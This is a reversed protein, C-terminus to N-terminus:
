TKRFACFIFNQISGSPTTHNITVCEIKEFSNKFLENMSIESYQVINLGSCKQPGLESFTAIIMLGKTNIYQEATKIYNLIEIEKTLFHFAARDHWLDYKETPKFSTVDAVIWNIENARNGLRKRAKEIATESIDLVTIDQFGIDLLNDALLSDGGGIDIIKASKPLNYSEIFQLSTEPKAQFWSVEKTQRTQYINEWHKKRDLQVM